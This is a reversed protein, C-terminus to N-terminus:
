TVHGLSGGSHVRIYAHAFLLAAHAYRNAIKKPRGRLLIKDLGPNFDDPPYDNSVRMNVERGSIYVKATTM